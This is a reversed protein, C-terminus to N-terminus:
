SLESSSSALCLSSSWAWCGGSLGDDVLRSASPAIAPGLLCAEIMAPLSVRSSFERRKALVLLPNARACFVGAATRSGGSALSALPQGPRAESHPEAQSWRRWVPARNIGAPRARRTGTAGAGPPRKRDVATPRVGVQGSGDACSRPQASQRSSGELSPVAPAVDPGRVVPDCRVVATV